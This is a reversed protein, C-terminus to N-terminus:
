KSVVSLLKQNVDGTQLAELLCFAMDGYTVGSVNPDLKGSTGPVFKGSAPGESMGPPVIQTVKM